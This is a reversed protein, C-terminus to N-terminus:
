PKRATRPGDHQQHFFDFDAHGGAPGATANFTFVGVKTGEYWATRYPYDRDGLPAYHEGDLSYSMTGKYHRHEIKLWLADQKLEPGATSAGPGSTATGKAFRIRKVGGEQVVGIWTYDDIMTCLGARQGEIMSATDLKTVIASEAGYLRQVLTNYAFLLHDERHIVKTRGFQSVGGQTNLHRATLRLHGPRATLSWHSDDPDHNWAWQGGLTTAAFEDAPDAANIPQVPLAPKAYPETLGVPEGIGDGDSDVGIWPWHDATWGAPELYVRRGYTAFLNYDHHLFAWRDGSVEVLSGQAANIAAKGAHFIKRSEYPGYLSKSRYVYQAKDKNKGTSAVSIYYFGNRKFVQPGKPPIDDILVTGQDVIADFSDNLRYIRLAGPNGVLFLYGKGDEDWFPCPDEFDGVIKESLSMPESWPGEPAAAKCVFGRYKTSWNFLYYTGRFFGVEGDQSGASCAKGPFMFDAHVGGLRSYIRGAHTWNVLDKSALLPMGMFHHSASTLYFTDGAKFVCPNNYDAWLIPNRYTGDGQDGWAPKAGPVAAHLAALPALLLATLLRLTKMTTETIKM